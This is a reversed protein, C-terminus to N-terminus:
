PTPPGKRKFNIIYLIKKLNINVQEPNAVFLKGKRNLHKYRVEEIVGEKPFISVSNKLSNEIIILGSPSVLNYEKFLRETLKQLKKSDGNKPVYEIKM